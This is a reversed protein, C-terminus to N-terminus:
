FKTQLSLTLGTAPDRRIEIHLMAGDKPDVCIFSRLLPIQNFQSRTM